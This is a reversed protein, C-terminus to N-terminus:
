VRLYILKKVNPFLRVFKERYNTTQPHLQNVSFFMSKSVVLLLIITLPCKKLEQLM